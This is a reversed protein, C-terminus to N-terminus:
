ISEKLFKKSYTMNFNLGAHIRNVQRKELYDILDRAELDTLLKLRQYFYENLEFPITSSKLLQEIYEIQTVEPAPEFEEIVPNFEM